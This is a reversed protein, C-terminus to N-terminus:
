KRKRSDLVDYEEKLKNLINQYPQRNFKPQELLEVQDKLYQPLDDPCGVKELSRLQITTEIKINFIDSKMRADDMAPTNVDSRNGIEVMMEIIDYLIAYIDQFRSHKFTHIDCHSFYRLGYSGFARRQANYHKQELKKAFGFDILKVDNIFEENLNCINEIEELSIKESETNPFFVCNELKIDYHMINNFHLCYINRIMKM